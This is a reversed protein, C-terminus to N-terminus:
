ENIICSSVCNMNPLVVRMQPIHSYETAGEYEYRFPCGKVALENNLEIVMGRDIGAMCNCCVIRWRLGAGTTYEEVAIEESEGCFPCPIIKTHNTLNKVKIFPM